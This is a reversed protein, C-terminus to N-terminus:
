AVADINGGKLKVAFLPGLRTLSIAHPHDSFEIYDAGVFTGDAFEVGLFTRDYALVIFCPAADLSVPISAARLANDM